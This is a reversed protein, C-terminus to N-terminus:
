AIQQQIFHDKRHDTEIKPKKRMVSSLEFHFVTPNTIPHKYFQFVNDTISPTTAAFFLWWTKNRIKILFLRDIRFCALESSSVVGPM